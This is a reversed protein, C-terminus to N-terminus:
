ALKYGVNEKKYSAVKNPLHNCVNRSVTLTESEFDCVDFAIIDTWLKVLIKRRFTRSVMLKHRPTRFVSKTTDLGLQFSLTARMVSLFYACLIKAPIFSVFAGLPSFLRLHPLLM